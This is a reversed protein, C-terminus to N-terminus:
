THAAETTDFYFQGHNVKAFNNYAASAEEATNFRGLHLQKGTLTATARWNQNQKDWSVGKFGSTNNVYVGTNKLNESTTALRLNALRNDAKVQNIHDIHEPPTVGHVYLWALRHALYRRGDIRTCIYGHRDPSGAVAGVRVGIRPKVWTFVGTGSDYHLLDKLKEQTIM